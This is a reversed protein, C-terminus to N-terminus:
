MSQHFLWKASESAEMLVGEETSVSLKTPIFWVLGTLAKSPLRMKLWRVATALRQKLKFLSELSM